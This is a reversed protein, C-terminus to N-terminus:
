NPGASETCRDNGLKQLFSLNRLIRDTYGYYELVGEPCDRRCKESVQLFVSAHAATDCPVGQISFHRGQLFHERMEKLYEACTTKQQDSDWAIKRLEPAPPSVSKVEVAAPKVVAGSSPLSKGDAPPATKEAAKKEAPAQRDPEPVGDFEAPQSQSQPGPDVAANSGSKQASQPDNAKREELGKKLTIGWRLAESAETEGTPLCAQWVVVVIILALHKM